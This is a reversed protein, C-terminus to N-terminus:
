TLEKVVVIGVNSSGKFSTYQFCQPFLLFHQYGADEGTGVINEVNGKVFNFKETVYIKCDAFAKLKSWDLIKKNSLSNVRQGCCDLSKLLHSTKFNAALTSIALPLRDM